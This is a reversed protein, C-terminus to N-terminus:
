NGFNQEANIQARRKAYAEESIGMKRAVERERNSLTVGESKKGSSAFSGITAAENEEKSALASRKAQDVIQGKNAIFHANELFQPLQSLPIESLVQRIPKKGGPDRLNALALALRNYSEKKAKEEQGKYGYDTFFKELIQNEQAARIESVNPDSESKKAGEDNKDKIDPTRSEPLSEGSTYKRVGDEVKRYLDPDSWIARLLTDVQEQAKKAEEVTKSQEGLKGELEVYAKAIEDPSKGKFKEPLQYSAETAKEDSQGADGSVPDQQTGKDAENAPPVKKEEAMKLNKRHTKIELNEV